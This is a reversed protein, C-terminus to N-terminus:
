WWGGNVNPVQRLAYTNPPYPKANAQYATGLPGTTPKDVKEVAVVDGVNVVQAPRGPSGGVRQDPLTPRAWQM